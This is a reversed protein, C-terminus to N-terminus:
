VKEVLTTVGELIKGILEASVDSDNLVIPARMAFSAVM